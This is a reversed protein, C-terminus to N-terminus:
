QLQGKTLKKLMQIHNQFKYLVYAENYKCFIQFNLGCHIALPVRYVLLGCQLALIPEQGRRQRM